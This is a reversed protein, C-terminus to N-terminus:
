KGEEKKGADKQSVGLERRIQETRSDLWDGLWKVKYIRRASVHSRHKRKVSAM